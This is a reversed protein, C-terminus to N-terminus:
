SQEPLLRGRAADLRLEASWCTPGCAHGNPEFKTLRAARRLHLLVRGHRDFVTLDAAYSANPHRPVGRWEKTISPAEGRRLKGAVCGAATCLKVSAARPLAHRLGGLQVRIGSTCGMETCFLERKTGDDLAKITFFGGVGFAAFLALVIALRPRFGAPSSRVLADDDVQSARVANARPEGLSRVSGSQEAIARVLNARHIEHRV